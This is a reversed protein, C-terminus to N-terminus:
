WGGTLLIKRESCILSWCGVLVLKRESCVLCWPFCVGTGGGSCVSRTGKRNVIVDYWVSPMPTRTWACRLVTCLSEDWAEGRFRSLIRKGGSCLATCFRSNCLMIIVNTSCVLVECNLCLLPVLVGAVQVGCPSQPNHYFQLLFGAVFKSSVDHGCRGQAKNSSVFSLVGLLTGTRDIISHDAVQTSRALRQLDAGPFCWELSLKPENENILGRFSYLAAPRACFNSQRQSAKTEAGKRWKHPIFRFQAVLFSLPHTCTYLKMLNKYSTLHSSLKSHNCLAEM